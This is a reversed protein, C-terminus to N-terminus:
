DEAVEVIVLEVLDVMDEPVELLGWVGCGRSVRETDIVVGVVPEGELVDTCVM